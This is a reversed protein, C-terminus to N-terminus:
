GQNNKRGLTHYRIMKLLGSFRGKRLNVESDVESSLTLLVCEDTQDAVKQCRELNARGTSVFCFRGNGRYVFNVLQRACRYRNKSNSFLVLKKAKIPKLDRAKNTSPLKVTKLILPTTQEYSFLREAYNTFYVRYPKYYNQPRLLLIVAAHLVCRHYETDFELYLTDHIVRKSHDLRRSPMDGILLGVRQEEVIVALKPAEGGVDRLMVRHIEEFKDFLQLEGKKVYWDYDQGPEIKRTHVAAGVLVIPKIVM